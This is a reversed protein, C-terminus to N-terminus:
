IVSPAISETGYKSVALTHRNSEAYVPVIYIGNNLTQIDM